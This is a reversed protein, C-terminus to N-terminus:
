DKCNTIQVKGVITLLGLNNVASNGPIVGSILMDQLILNGNNILAKADGLEKSAALNFGELRLTLENQIEFVPFNTGAKIVSKGNIGIITLTRDIVIPAELKITDLINAQDLYITDGLM